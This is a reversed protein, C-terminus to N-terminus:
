IKIMKSTVVEGNSYRLNIIYMAPALGSTNLEYSRDGEQLFSQQIVKGTLDIISIQAKGESAKAFSLKTMHSVPNPTILLEKSEEEDVWQKQAVKTSASGGTACADSCASELIQIVACVQKSCNDSNVIELCVMYEGFSFTHAAKIGTATQGDGFDWNYITNADVGTAVAEFDVDKSNLCTEYTFKAALPVTCPDDVLINRCFKESCNPNSNKTVELCVTHTGPSM